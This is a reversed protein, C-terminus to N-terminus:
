VNIFQIESCASEIKKSKTPLLPNVIISSNPCMNKIKEIKQVINNFHEKVKKQQPDSMQRRPSNDWIDKIGCHIIINSKLEALDKM